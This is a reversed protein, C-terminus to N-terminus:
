WITFAGAYDQTPSPLVRYKTNFAVVTVTSRMRADVEIALLPGVREEVMVIFGM